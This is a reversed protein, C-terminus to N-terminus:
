WQHTNERPEEKEVKLARVTALIFCPSPSNTGVRFFFMSRVRQASCVDSDHEAQATESAELNQRATLARASVQIPSRSAAIRPRLKVLEGMSPLRRSLCGTEFGQAPITSLFPHRDEDDRSSRRRGGAQEFPM